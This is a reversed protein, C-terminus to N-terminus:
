RAIGDCAVIEPLNTGIGVFEAVGIVRGAPARGRQGWQRPDPQVALGLSLGSRDEGAAVGAIGRVGGVRVM